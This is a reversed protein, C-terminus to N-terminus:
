RSTPLAGPAAAAATPAAAGDADRAHAAILEVLRARAGQPLDHGMGEITELRAGPIAAATSRGGSPHVMRDRDGHIVLTPASIQRLETRRDGSKTIAGIQRGAGAAGRSDRDFSRAALDRVMAEDYPFGHSGIHRWMTDARDAAQDRDQAPARFLRRLTSPATWGVRRGGTSSMISVLSRVLKPHRAALTQGIMGGMSVGVVHVPGLELAEILNATDQAMDALEYQEPAFRRTVLQKLGPPRTAAHWSRGADRNDFRVVQFRRETLAECFDEPWSLLPQGLGAILLLPPHTRDGFRECCLTVGRGVDILQEGHSAM